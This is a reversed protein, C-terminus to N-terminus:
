PTSPSSTRCSSPTTPSPRRRLRRRRRPLRPLAARAGDVDRRDGGAAVARARGFPVGARRRSRPRGAARGGADVGWRAALPAATERCRRLPSTVLHPTARRAAGLRDALGRGPRPGVDDLGPDPDADWGGTARGHRVLHVTAMLRRGAALRRAPRARAGPEIFWETGFFRTSCRSPPMALMMGVDTIQSAHAALARRKQTSTRRCTSPAPQDRGGAHRVPQRRRGPRQPRLRERRREPAAEAM